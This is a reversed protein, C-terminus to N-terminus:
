RLSQFFNPQNSVPLMMSTPLLIGRGQLYNRQDQDLNDTFGNYTTYINEDVSISSYRLLNIVDKPDSLKHRIGTKQKVLHALQQLHYIGTQSLALSKM